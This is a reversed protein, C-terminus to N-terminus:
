IKRKKSLLFFNLLSALCVNEYKSQHSFFKKKEKESTFEREQKLLM